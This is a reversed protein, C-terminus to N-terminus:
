IGSLQDRPTIHFQYEPDNDYGNTESIVKKKAAKETKCLVWVRGTNTHWVIFKYEPNFCHRIEDEWAFTVSM